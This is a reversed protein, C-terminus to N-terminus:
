QTENNDDKRNILDHNYLALIVYQIIKTL